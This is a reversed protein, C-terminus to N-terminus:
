WWDGTIGDNSCRITSSKRKRLDAGVAGPDGTIAGREAWVHGAPDMRAMELRSIREKASEIGRKLKAVEESLVM